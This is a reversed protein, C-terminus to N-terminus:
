FLLGLHLDITYRDGYHIADSKQVLAICPINNNGPRMPSVSNRYGIPRPAESINPQVANSRHALLLGMSRLPTRTSVITGTMVPKSAVPTQAAAEPRKETALIKENGSKLQPMLGYMEAHDSVVLFDLPRALRVAQLKDSEEKRATEEEALKRAEEEPDPKPPEPDPEEVEPEPDEPEPEDQKNLYREPSASFKAQCGSSCFHYTHGQYDHTPKGVHTDVTMGCVPDVALPAKGSAAETM